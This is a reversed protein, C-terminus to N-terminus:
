LPVMPGLHYFFNDVQKNCLATLHELSRISKIRSLLDTLLPVTDRKWYLAILFRAATLLHLLLKMSHKPLPRQTVNLLFLCPDLTFRIGLVDHLLTNVMNWYPRIKSCEWFIHLQSGKADSCRWCLDPIAPNLKHLLMPTHYWHMLLKIQNERHTICQSTKIAWHWIVQWLETPITRHLCADWKDMYSHRFLTDPLPSVLIYSIASLM